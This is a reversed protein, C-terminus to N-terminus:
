FSLAIWEGTGAVAALLLIFVEWGIAECTDLTFNPIREEESMRAREAM